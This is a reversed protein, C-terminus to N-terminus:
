QFRGVVPRCRVSVDLYALRLRLDLALGFAVAALIVLVDRDGDGAGFLGGLDVDGVGDVDDDRLVITEGYRRACVTACFLM